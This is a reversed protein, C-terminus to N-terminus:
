LDNEKLTSFLTDIYSRFLKDFVVLNKPEGDNEQLQAKFDNVQKEMGAHCNCLNTKKNTGKKLCMKSKRITQM